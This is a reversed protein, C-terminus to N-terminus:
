DTLTIGKRAPPLFKPEVGLAEALEKATVHV